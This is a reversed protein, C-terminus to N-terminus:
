IMTHLILMFSYLFLIFTFKCVPVLVFHSTMFRSTYVIRDVTNAINWVLDARRLQSILGEGDPVYYFYKRPKGPSMEKKIVIKVAEVTESSETGDVVDNTTAKDSGIIHNYKNHHKKKTQQAHCLIILFLLLILNQM